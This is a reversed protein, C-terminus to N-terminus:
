IAGELGNASITESRGVIESREPVTKERACCREWLRSIPTPADVALVRRQAELFVAVSTGLIMAGTLVHATRVLARHLLLNEPELIGQGAFRNMWSEIGLLLQVVILVGFASVMWRVRRPLSRDGFILKMLWVAAAVIAFAIFLHGRQGLPSGRHRLIAGFVLQGLLLVVVLLSATRLRAAHVSYIEEAPRRWNESTVVALGFLLAFLCQGFCGHILALTPGIWEHLNVRFGGLLGQVSVGALAAVGLWRVWKRHETLWLGIALGIVCAGVAFGALRHSHEIIFGLGHEELRVQLMHWPTRFGVEDVMGKQRTTVEAGLAVLFLALLVTLVALRHLWRLGTMRDTITTATLSMLEIWNQRGQRAM